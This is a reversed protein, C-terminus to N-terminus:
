RKVAFSNPVYNGFLFSHIFKWILHKGNHKQFSAVYFHAKKQPTSKMFFTAVPITDKPDYSEFKYGDLSYMEDENYALKGKPNMAGAFAVVEHHLYNKM